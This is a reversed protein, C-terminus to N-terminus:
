DNTRGTRCQPIQRENQTRPTLRERKKREKKKNSAKKETPPSTPNEFKEIRMKFFQLEHQVDYPDSSFEHCALVRARQMVYIQFIAIVNVVVLIMQFVSPFYFFLRAVM